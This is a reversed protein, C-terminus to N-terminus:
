NNENLKAVIINKIEEPILNILDFSKEIKNIFEEEYHKWIIFYFISIIILMFIFILVFLNNQNDIYSYFYSDTLDGLKGYWPRFYRKLSIDLYLFKINNILSSINKNNIDRQDDIFYKIYLFKLMEFIENITTKFGGKTYVKLSPDINIFESFDHYFVQIFDNKYKNKLFSNTKSIEKVSEGFKQSLSTFGYLFVFINVDESLDYNGISPNDFYQKASDIRTMIDIESYRVSHYITIYNDINKSYNRTDLYKWLIILDFIMFFIILYVFYPIFSKGKNNKEKYENLAVFKAINIDSPKINTNYSQQPEEENEDVGFFKNLLKNSFNDASNKLAELIKNKITLFLNVPKERDNDLRIMLKWFFYLFISTLLYAACFIIISKTGLSKSEKKLNTTMFSIIKEYVIFHSNLLNSSLEYIYKNDLDFVNKDSPSNCIYMIANLLKTQSSPLPQYEVNEGGNNWTKMEIKETDRYDMYEKSLKIDPNNMKTLITSFQTHYSSLESKINKIYDDKNPMALAYNEFNTTLIGETLFYKIYVIGNMLDYSYKFYEQRKKQDNYFENRFVFEIITLTIIVIYILFDLIKVRSISDVNVINKLSLINDGFLDKNIKEIDDSTNEDNKIDQHIDNNTNFTVTVKKEESEDKKVFSKIRRFLNPNQKIKLTIRKTFDNISIRILPEQAKGSPYKDRNPRHKILSIEKGYFPLTNIFYKIGNSDKTQLELIKEKTIKIEVREEESSSEEKIKKSDKIPKISKYEKMDKDKNIINENSEEDRLNRFGSKKQVIIARIYKLNLLDFIIQNKLSPIFEKLQNGIEDKKNKKSEFIKFIFGNIIGNSQNKLEIIQLNYKMKDSENILDQINRDKNKLSDDKPYIINPYVWTIKKENNKFDKYKESLNLSKNLNTRILVNLKIMYKKLLDMTLGLHIASSSISEATFDLTSLIYFAYMSKTDVSELKMKILFSDSFDNDEFISYSLYFPIIYGMKNKILIFSKNKEIDKITDEDRDKKINSIKIFNEIDRSYNDRFIAPLLIELPKNLVENKEYGIIHSLSGSLQVITCNGKENSKVFIIFDQTELSNLIFRIDDDDQVKNYVNINHEESIKKLVLDSKKQDWLIERLFMSYLQAIPENESDLKKNKLENEWLNNLEKLYLNIEEGLKYLKQVNLNNTVKAEFIGWFEAYLKTINSIFKKLKQYKQELIIKENQELEESDSESKIKMSTITTEQCFVIFETKNDMKIKKLEEFTAKLSSLNYKQDYNFQIFYIRILLDRPFKRMAKNFISTMHSLLAQKQVTFNGENQIFKTLPCDERLCSISHIEIIGKLILIDKKYSNEQESINKNHDKIFSNILKTLIKVNSLCSNIDNFKIHNGYINNNEVDKYYMMFCYISLPFGFLMLYLINNINSYNTCIKAVLLMFYTWLMIINRINLFLEIKNCNYIPNNLQSYILFFSSLLLIAISTYESKIFVYQLIFLLKIILLEEDVASNLRTTSVVDFFPYFYYYNLIYMFIFFTIIGIISLIIFFIHTSKWCQYDGWNIVREFGSDECKFVTLYIELFPIFFIVKIPIILIQTFYLFKSYIKSEEKRYLIQIILFIFLIMTISFVVYFIISYAKLSIFYALPILRTGSLCFFIYQFINKPINWTLLHPSSFAFSVLQIIEITHYIYLTIFNPEKRLTLMNFFYDYIKLKLTKKGEILDHNIISNNKSIEM